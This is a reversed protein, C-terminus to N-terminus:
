GCDVGPLWVSQIGTLGWAKGSSSVSWVSRRILLESWTGFGM